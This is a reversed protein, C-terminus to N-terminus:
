ENGRGELIKPGSVNLLKIAMGHADPERDDKQKGNSFRILADYEKGPVFLGVRLDHPLDKEVTFTARVCGHHKPHQGRPVPSERELTTLNLAVIRAITAAEGAEEREEGLGLPEGAMSRGGQEVAVSLLLPLTCSNRICPARLRLM